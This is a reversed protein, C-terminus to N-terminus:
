LCTELWSACSPCAQIKHSTQSRGSAQLTEQQYTHKPTPSYDMTTLIVMVMYNICSKPVPGLAFCKNSDPPNHGNNKIPHTTKQNTSSLMSLKFDNIKEQLVANMACQSESQSRSTSHCFSYQLMPSFGAAM